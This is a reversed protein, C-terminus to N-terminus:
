TLKIIPVKVLHDCWIDADLLWDWGAAIVRESVDIDYWTRHCNDGALGLSAFVSRRGLLCGFGSGLVKRVGTGADALLGNKHENRPGFAVIAPDYRHVYVGTIAAVRPQVSSFMKKIVDLREPIVDDEISLFWEGTVLKLAYNYGGAVASDVQRQIDVRGRREEDSLGPFGLDHQEIHLSKGKWDKLGLHTATLPKHTTNIILLRTLHLPWENEVIWKRLREWAEWRGSFLVMITVVEHDHNSQSAYTQFKPQTHMQGPHIRYYLPVPSKRAVWPGGRLVARATVWDSTCCDDMRPSDAAQTQRVINTRYISGASCWNRVEMDAITLVDLAFDLGAAVGEGHDFKQLVPFVIATNPDADFIKVASAFYDPHVKDDADLFICFRSFVDRFGERNAKQQSRYEVRVIQIPFPYSGGLDAETVPKDSADDVIIVRMPLLTSAKLSGLMDPLYQSYNHCPSIVTFEENPNRPGRCIGDGEFPLAEGRMDASMALSLDELSLGLDSAWSGVMRHHRRLWGIGGRLIAASMKSHASFIEATKM